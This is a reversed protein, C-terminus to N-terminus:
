GLKYAFAVCARENMAFCCLLLRRAVKVSQYSFLKNQGDNFLSFDIFTTYIAVKM